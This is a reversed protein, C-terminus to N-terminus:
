KKKEEKKEKVIGLFVEETIEEERVKKGEPTEFWGSREKLFGDQVLINAVGSMRDIGKDFSIKIRAKRFPPAIKNKKIFAETEVGIIKEGRKLKNRISLEVRVSSMFPIAKGGPTTKAQGWAGIDAIVHNSIIYLIDNDVVYDWVMRVGARIKKAKTMDDKDFGVDKEHETSLMAVSDLALLIRAEPDQEKIFPILGSKGKIKEGDPGKTDKTGLFMKRFHEEVTDSTRRIVRPVDVGMMEVMNAMFADEVDDLIPYAHREYRRQFNAIANYIFFSKGASPDGFLETIKGCPYGKFFDGSVIKNLAYNGTDVWSKIDEGKGVVVDDFEDAVLEFVSKDKAM